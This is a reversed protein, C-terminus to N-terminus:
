MVAGVVNNVHQKAQFYMTLVFNATSTTGDDSSFPNEPYRESRHRQAVKVPGKRISLKAM